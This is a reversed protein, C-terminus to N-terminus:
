KHSDWGQDYDDEAGDTHYVPDDWQDYAIGDMIRYGESTIGTVRGSGGVVNPAYVGFRSQNLYIQRHMPLNKFDEATMKGERIRNNRKVTEPDYSPKSKERLSAACSKSCSKGWGRKVNREDANYPKSCHDCNRKIYGM